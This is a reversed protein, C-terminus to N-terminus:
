NEEHEEEIDLKRRLYMVVDASLESNLESLLARRDNPKKPFSALIDEVLGNTIEDEFVFYSIAGVDAGFTRLRPNQISVQGGEGEKFVLVQTKPVERVFYSSHTAIVAVSGTLRLLKDLIKVFESIFNPHLHTEPEDLLVLTGNEVFLCAQVIFKIISLQGSSLPYIKNEIHIMPNASSVAAGHIELTAQEGGNGLKLLPVYNRGSINLVHNASVSIDTSLPIVVNKIDPFFQIIEKFLEWRHYQGILEETRCLQVCLDCFGRSIRTRAARNLILRRYKIRKNAREAPFSNVTEGPTAIALVRSIMPRGYIGDSLRLDGKVLSSVMTHLAQSKGLGNRGILVCIRKPLFSDPDFNLEFCHEESFGAVRYSLLLKNSINSFSENELGDIISKANHFAFFRESDRMFALSFIKTNQAKEILKARWAVGRSAVLDNLTLLINKSNKVGHQVVFKRYDDMGGQLTFFNPLEKADIMNVERSIKGSEDINDNSSLFGLFLHGEIEKQDDGLHAIYRYRCRYKFDNWSDEVPFLVIVPAKLNAIDVAKGHFYIRSDLVTNKEIGDKM